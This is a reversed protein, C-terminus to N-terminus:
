RDMEASKEPPSRPFAWVTVEARGAPSGFQVLQTLEETESAGAGALDEAVGPGVKERGGLLDDAQQGTAWGGPWCLVLLVLWTSRTRAVHM